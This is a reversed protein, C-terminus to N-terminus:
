SIKKQDKVIAEETQLVSIASILRPNQVPRNPFPVRPNRLVPDAM